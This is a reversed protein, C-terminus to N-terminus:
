TSIVQQEPQPPMGQAVPAPPAEPHPLGEGKGQAMDTAADDATLTVARMRKLAEYIFAVTCPLPHPQRLQPPDSGM